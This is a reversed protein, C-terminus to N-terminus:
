APVDEMTAGLFGPRVKEAEAVLTREAESMSRGNAAEFAAERCDGETAEPEVCYYVPEGDRYTGCVSLGHEAAYAAAQEFDSWTPAM